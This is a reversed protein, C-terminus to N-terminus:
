ESSTAFSLFRELVNENPPFLSESYWKMACAPEISRSNQRTARARARATWEIQTIMGLITNYLTTRIEHYLRPKLSVRHSLNFSLLSYFKGKGLLDLKFINRLSIIWNRIRATLLLNNQSHSLLYFVNKKKMQNKLKWAIENNKIKTKSRIMFDRRHVHITM